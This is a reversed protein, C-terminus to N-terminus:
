LSMVSSEFRHTNARGYLASAAGKFSSSIFALTM